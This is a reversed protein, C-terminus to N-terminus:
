FKAHGTREGFRAHVHEDTMGESSAHTSVHHRVVALLFALMVVSHMHEHVAALLFSYFFKFAFTDETSLKRPHSRVIALLNLLHQQLRHLYLSHFRKSFVTFSQSYKKLPYFKSSTALSLRPLFPSAIHADTARHRNVCRKKM